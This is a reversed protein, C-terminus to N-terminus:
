RLFHLFKLHRSRHLHSFLFTGTLDCALLRSVSEEETILEKVDTKVTIRVLRYVSEVADEEVSGSVVVAEEVPVVAEIIFVTRYGHQEVSKCVGLLEPVLTQREANIGAVVDVNGCAEAARINEHPLECVLDPIRGNGRDELVM